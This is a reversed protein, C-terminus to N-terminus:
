LIPVNLFGYSNLDDIIDKVRNKYVKVATEKDQETELVIKSRVHGEQQLGSSLWIATNAICFCAPGVTKLDEEFLQRSYGNPVNAELLIEELTQFYTDLLQKFHQSRFQSTSGTIILYLVDFAPSSMRTTQYDIMCVSIPRGDMYKFLLNEKWIDGHCLCTENVSNYMAEALTECDTELKQFLAAYQTNSFKILGKNLRDKLIDMFRKNNERNLPVCTSKATEYLAAERERLIFSLAHFQALCKVSLLLHEIDLFVDKTFPHYGEACMNQMVVAEKCYDNNIYYCKPVVFGLLGSINNQIDQYKPLVSSYVFIEKAFFITVAGSVRYREDTPALKLVLNLVVEGKQNRGVLSIPIIVGFYNQAINVFTEKEYKWNEIKSDIVVCELINKIYEENISEM